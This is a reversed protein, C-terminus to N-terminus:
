FIHRVGETMSLWLWEAPIRLAPRQDATNRLGVFVALGSGEETSNRSLLTLLQFDTEIRRLAPFRANHGRFVGFGRFTRANM